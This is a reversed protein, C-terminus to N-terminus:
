TWRWLGGMGVSSSGSWRPVSGVSRKRVVDGGRAMGRRGGRAWGRVEVRARVEVVRGGVGVGDRGLGVGRGVGGSGRGRNVVGGLGEVWVALHRRPNIGGPNGRGVGLGM